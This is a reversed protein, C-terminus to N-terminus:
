QIEDVEYEGDVDITERATLTELSGTFDLHISSCEVYVPDDTSLEVTLEELPDDYRDDEPDELSLIWGPVDAEIEVDENGHLSCEAGSGIAGLYDNRMIETLDDEIRSLEADDLEGLSPPDDDIVTHVADTVAQEVYREEIHETVFGTKTLPETDSIQREVSSKYEGPAALMFAWQILIALFFLFALIQLEADGKRQM